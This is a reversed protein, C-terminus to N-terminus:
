FNRFILFFNYKGGPVLNGLNLNGNLQNKTELIKPQTKISTLIQFELPSIQNQNILYKNEKNLFFFIKGNKQINSNLM